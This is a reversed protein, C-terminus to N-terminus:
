FCYALLKKQKAEYFGSQKTKWLGTQSPDFSVTPLLFTVFIYKAISYKPLYGYFLIKLHM